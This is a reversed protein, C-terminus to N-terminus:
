ALVGDDTTAAVRHIMAMELTECASLLDHCLVADKGTWEKFIPTSLRAVLMRLMMCDQQMDDRVSLLRSRDADSLEDDAPLPSFVADVLADSPLFSSVRDDKAACQLLFRGHGDSPSLLRESDHASSSLPRESGHAREIDPEDDDDMDDILNYTQEGEVPDDPDDEFEEDALVEDAAADAAAAAPTSPDAGASAAPEGGALFVNQGDDALAKPAGALSAINAAAVAAATAPTAPDGGAVNMDQAPPEPQSEHANMLGAARQEAVVKAAKEEAAVKAREATVAKIGLASPRRGSSKGCWCVVLRRQAAQLDAQLRVDASDEYQPNPNARPKKVISAPLAFSLCAPSALPLLVPVDGAVSLNAEAQAFERLAVMDDRVSPSLHYVCSCVVLEETFIRKESADRVREKTVAVPEMAERNVLAEGRSVNNVRSRFYKNLAAIVGEMNDDTMLKISPFAEGVTYRVHAMATHLYLNYVGASKTGVDLHKLVAYLSALASSILQLVVAACEREHPSSTGIARRWCATLTQSLQLLVIIGGDVPVGLVGPDAVIHAVLLSFERLYMSKMNGRGLVSFINRRATIKHSAPLLSLMFWILNKAITGTCHLVPPQVVFPIDGLLPFGRTGGLLRRLLKFMGSLPSYAIPPLLQVGEHGYVPCLRGRCWLQAPSFSSAVVTAGCKCTSTMRGKTGAWLGRSLACWRALSWVVLLWHKSLTDPRRAAGPPSCLWFAGSLYRRPECLWWSPCRSEDSGGTLSLFHCLMAFDGCLHLFYPLRLEATDPGGDDAGAEKARATSTGPKKAGPKKAGAKTAGAEEALPVAYTANLAAQVRERLRAGLVSHIAQEGSLLFLVPVLPSMGTPFISASIVLTFVTLTTRRVPGGDGALTVIVTMESLDESHAQGGTRIASALSQVTDFEVAVVLERDSGDDRELYTAKTIRYKRKRKKVADSGSPAEGGTLPEHAIDGLSTQVEEGAAPAVDAEVHACQLLNLDENDRSAVDPDHARPLGEAVSPVVGVPPCDAAGAGQVRPRPLGDAASGVVVRPPLPPIGSSGLHDGNGSREALKEASGGGATDVGIGPSTVCANLVGCGSGRGVAVGNPSHTRGRGADAPQTIGRGQRADAHTPRALPRLHPAALRKTTGDGLRYWRVGKSASGLVYNWVRIRGREGITIMSHLPRNPDDVAERRVRAAVKESPFTKCASKGGPMRRRHARHLSSRRRAQAKADMAADGPAALPADASTTRPGAADASPGGGAADISPGGPRDELEAWARMRNLTAANSSGIMGRQREPTMSSFANAVRFKNVAVSAIRLDRIHSVYKVWPHKKVDDVQVLTVSGAERIGASTSVIHAARRLLQRCDNDSLDARSMDKWSPECQGNTASSASPYEALLRLTEYAAVLSKLYGRAVLKPVARAFVERGTFESAARFRVAFSFQAPEVDTHCHVPGLLEWFQGDLGASPTALPSCVHFATQSKREEGNNAM